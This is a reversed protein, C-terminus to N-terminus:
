FKYDKTSSRLEHIFRIAGYRLKSCNTNKQTLCQVHVRYTYMTCKYKNKEKHVHVTTGIDIKMVIFFLLTLYPFFLLYMKSSYYPYTNIVM